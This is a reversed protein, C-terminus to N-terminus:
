FLAYESKIKGTKKGDEIDKLSANYSQMDKFVSEKELYQILKIQEYRKDLAKETSIWNYNKYTDTVISVEGDPNLAYKILKSPHLLFRYGKNGSPTISELQELIKFFPTKETAM